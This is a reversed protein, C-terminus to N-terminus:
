TAPSAKQPAIRLTGRLPYAADVARLTVLQFQEGFSVMSAFEMAQSRRLASEVSVVPWDTIPRPSVVLLDAGLFGAGQDGMGRQLRDGLFGTTAVSGVGIVLALLLVRWEGSARERLLLWLGLRFFRMRQGAWGGSATPPSM